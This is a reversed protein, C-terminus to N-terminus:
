VAIRTLTEPDLYISYDPIGAAHRQEVMKSWLADHRRKYEEKCGSNLQMRCANRILKEM